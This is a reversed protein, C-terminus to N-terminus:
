APWFVKVLPIIRRTDVDFNDYYRVVLEVLTDLNILTLPISSRDAEYQAEKSFGGTSVYLGNCGPRLGGTFSRIENSSVQGSRHKVEVKIRPEELGLGDPSAQIDRGRDPGGPSVLTRYGMARLVGAVLEQMDEWTLATIKDKVFEFARSEMDEKITELEAEQNETDEASEEKGQLINIIDEKADEGVEFLTQIAGLTNKTSTKLKDRPVTDELWEVKRVHRYEEMENDYEYDGVIKGVLYAREIPDYTVVMDGTRFDFKFRALQGAQTRIQAPSYEAYKEEVAHRIEDASSMESVDNIRVFGIAVVSKKKFTELFRAGEGARVMWMTEQDEM